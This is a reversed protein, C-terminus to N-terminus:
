YLWHKMLLVFRNSCFVLSPVNASPAGVHVITLHEIRIETPTHSKQTKKRVRNKIRVHCVSPDYRSSFM